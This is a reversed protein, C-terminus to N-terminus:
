SSALGPMTSPRRSHPCVQGTAVPLVVGTVSEGAFRRGNLARALLQSPNNTQDGYPGFGTVLVSV